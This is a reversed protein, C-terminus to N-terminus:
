QKFVFMNAIQGGAKFPPGAAGLSGSWMDSSSAFPRAAAISRKSSRYATVALAAYNAHGRLSSGFCWPRAGMYPRFLAAKLAPNFRTKM